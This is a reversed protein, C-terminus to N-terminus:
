HPFKLARSQVRPSAHAPLTPHGMLFLFTPRWSPDRTLEALELQRKAPDYISRNTHRNPIADYLDSKRLMGPALDIRAVLRLPPETNHADLSGDSFCITTAYGNATAALTLNELACGQGIHAERLCPDLRVVSRSADLYMEVFNDTVRFRWPETNHPSSALIASRVLKLPKAGRGCGVPEM